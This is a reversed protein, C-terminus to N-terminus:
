KHKDVWGASKCLVSHSSKFQKERRRAEALNDFRESYVLIFPRRNKTSQNKGANHETIRRDLNNTSGIYLRQDMLRKLVYTFGEM